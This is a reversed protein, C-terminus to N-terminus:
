RNSRESGSNRAAGAERARPGTSAACMGSLRNGQGHGGEANAFGADQFLRLAEKGMRDVPEPPYGPFAVSPISVLRELDALLGPMM